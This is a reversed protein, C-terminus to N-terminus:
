ALLALIDQYGRYSAAIDVPTAGKLNKVTKDAGAKLLRVCIQTHNYRVAFHLPTDGVAWGRIVKTNPANIDVLGKRILIDIVDAWGHYCASFLVDQLEETPLGSGFELLSALAGTDKAKVGEQLVARPVRAGHEVLMQLAEGKHAQKRYEWALTIPVDDTLSANPDAGAQVPSLAM